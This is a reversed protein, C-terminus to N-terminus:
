AGHEEAPEVEGGEVEKPPFVISLLISLLIAGAVVGLSINIVAEKFEQNLYRRMFDAFMGTSADGLIWMVGQALLPLLM